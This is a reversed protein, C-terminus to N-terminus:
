PTGDEELVTLGFAFGVMIHKSRMKNLLDTVRPPSYIESVAARTAAKRERKYKGASGELAGIVNM